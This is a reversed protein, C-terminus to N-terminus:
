ELSFSQTHCLTRCCFRLPDKKQKGRDLNIDDRTGNGTDREEEEMQTNNKTGQAKEQEAFYYGQNWLLAMTTINLIILFM